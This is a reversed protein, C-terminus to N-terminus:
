IETIWILWGIIVGPSKRGEGEGLELEFGIALGFGLELELEVGGEGMDAGSCFSGAALGVIFAMSM